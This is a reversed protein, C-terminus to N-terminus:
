DFLYILLRMVFYICLVAIVREFTVKKKFNEFCKKVSDLFSM